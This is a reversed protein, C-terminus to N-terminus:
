VAFQCGGRTFSSTAEDELVFAIEGLLIDENGKRIKNLLKRTYRRREKSKRTTTTPSCTSTSNTYKQSFAGTREALNKNKLEASDCEERAMLSIMRWLTPRSITEVDGWSGSRGDGQQTKVWRLREMRVMEIM